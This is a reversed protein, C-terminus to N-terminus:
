SVFEGSTPQDPLREPQFLRYEKRRHIVKGDRIQIGNDKFPIWGLSKRGRWRLKRKKAQTRKQAFTQCVRQVTGSALELEKSAGATLYNLDFGTLWKNNYRIAYLSTENCYNWVYNVANAMRRLEKRVTSDKIRIKVTKVTYEEM